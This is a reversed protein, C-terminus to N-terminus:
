SVHHLTIWLLNWYMNDNNKESHQAILPSYFRFHHCCELWEGTYHISLVLLFVNTSHSSLQQSVHKSFLLCQCHPWFNVQALQWMAFIVKHRMNVSDIVANSIRILSCVLAAKPVGLWCIRFWSSLLGLIFWYARVSRNEGKGPQSLLLFVLLPFLHLHDQDHFQNHDALDAKHHHLTCHPCQTDTHM